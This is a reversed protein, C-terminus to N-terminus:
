KQPISMIFVELFSAGHRTSPMSLHPESREGCGLVRWSFSLLFLVSFWVSLAAACPRERRRRRVYLWYGLFAAGAFFLLAACVSLGFYISAYPYSSVIIDGVVTIRFAIMGWIVAFFAAVASFAFMVAAAAFRRKRIRRAREELLIESVSRAIASIDDQGLPEARDSPEASLDSVGLEEGYLDAPSLRLKEYLFQMTEVSPVSKGTEWRHVTQRSVGCFEALREQSLGRESRLLKIQESIQNEDTRNELM